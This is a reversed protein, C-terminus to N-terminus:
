APEVEITVHRLAVKEQLAARYEALTRPSTARVAVICVRHGPSADWVHLDVVTAGSAELTERILGLTGDDPASDVLTRGASRLLGVGWRLIMVSGVLASVPDLFAWGLFRGALLAGIALVSTFADALVHLYAARLNDDRDRGHHHHDHHDHGHHPDHHHHDHDHHHHEGPPTLWVVSVLNVLLGLVAVVLAETYAIPQPHRLRQAGEVAMEVAVALLVLANTYGALAHVKGGGFAFAGRKSRTRAFWYAGATLALAGAHTAMHWGDATLALSRTAYGAVLEAVMTVLTLAAVKLARSERGDDPPSIEDRCRLEADTM